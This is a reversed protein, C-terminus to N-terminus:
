ITGIKRLWVKDLILYGGNAKHLAGPAIKQYNTVLAGQESVYEIRGVLNAYSPHPEYIVPAGSDPAHHTAINPLLSDELSSRKAYEERLDMLREEVLEELVVSPLHEEMVTIYDMVPEHHSFAERIPALLPTIAERITEQNLRRLENSSERKWQPLELLAENLKEELEVITLNIHDRQEQSLSAFKIDDVIQGDIVPSFSINSAEQYLSISKENAEKELITIASEIKSNFLRDIATKQRQYGPNEFAAPLIALIRDVFQRCDTVLKKGMGTPLEIVWPERVDEFNNM